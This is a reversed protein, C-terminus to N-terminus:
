KGYLKQKKLEGKVSLGDKLMIIERGLCGCQSFDIKKAFSINKDKKACYFIPMTDFYYYIEGFELLGNNNGDIDSVSYWSHMSLFLGIFAYYGFIIFFIIKVIKM